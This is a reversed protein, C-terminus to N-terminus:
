KWGAARAACGAATRWFVRNSFGARLGRVLTAFAALHSGERSQAGAQEALQVARQRLCLARIRRNTAAAAAKRFVREGDAYLDVTRLQATTRGAHERVLALNEPLACVESRAALRLAFDFDSRIPISPDFGGVEEILSRQVLLTVISAAMEFRLMPELIHGSVPRRLLASRERLPREDADVLRYGTYSWRCAPHLALRQLQLALKEPLWLDDSDLFAVWEGRVHRLGASRASTLDGRHELWLPRLRSDGISALYDRTGDTSGDDVIVLEFDSHTQSLVSDVARRLLPLRNWTPLIISVQPV